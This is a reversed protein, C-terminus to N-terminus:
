RPGDKSTPTSPQDKAPVKDAPKTAPQDAGAQEAQPKSQPIVVFSSQGDDILIHDGMIEIKPKHPVSEQFCKKNQYITVPNAQPGILDIRWKPLEIIQFGHSEYYTVGIVKKDSVSGTFFTGIEQYYHKTNVVYVLWCVAVLAGGILGSIIARRM